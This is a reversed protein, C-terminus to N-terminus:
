PTEHPLVYVEVTAKRRGRKVMWTKQPKAGVARAREVRAWAQQYKLSRPHPNGADEIVIFDRPQYGAPPPFLKGELFVRGAYYHSWCLADDIHDVPLTNEALWMGAERFGARHLHLPQLTKPLSVLALLLPLALVKIESKLNCIESQFVFGASLKKKWDSIQLRFDAIWLLGAVCWPGGCLLILLTHRDSLYGIVVVVRWLAYAVGLCVLLMMWAAPMRVLRKRDLWLGLLAAAAGVYCAGKAIEYGLVGLGWWVRQSPLRDYVKWVALLVHGGEGSNGRERRQPSPEPTLPAAEATHNEMVRLASPKVTLRGIMAMYPGALLLASLSLAATCALLDRRSRRWGQVAQGALLVLGTALVILIGEPRTLYALAGFLGALAFAGPSRPRRLARGSWLLASSAFLLFLAESLGDALIRGSVPLCQLLLASGFGVRRDFWDRGLCFVPLVLLVGAVASVLQASLRMLDALTGHCVLGLPKSSGLLALPYAPHQESEKLVRPWQALPAEHLRWAVRIFSISDRAAVTTHTLQWIRISAAALLVALLWWDARAWARRAEQGHGDKPEQM